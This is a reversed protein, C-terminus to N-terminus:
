LSRSITEALKLLAAEQEPRGFRGFAPACKECAFAYAGDQQLGATHLLAWAADLHRLSKERDQELDALDALNCHTVAMDPEGGSVQAMVSIAREFFSQAECYRGLDVLALAMNNYLGGRRRDGPSLRQEYIAEARAYLPLAQEARGFAKYATAANLLTTAYCVTGDLALEDAAELALSCATMAESERHLNRYFGIQENLITLRGQRDGTLEAEGLWYQLHREAAYYEKKNFYADLKELVREVPIGM